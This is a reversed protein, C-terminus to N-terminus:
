CFIEAWFSTSSPGQVWATVLIGDKWVPDCKLFVSLKQRDHRVQDPMWYQLVIFFCQIEPGAGFSLFVFIRFRSLASLAEEGPIGVSGANKFSM